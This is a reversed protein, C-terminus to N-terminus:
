DAIGVLDGGELAEVDIVDDHVEIPADFIVFGQLLNAVEAKRRAHRRKADVLRAFAMIELVDQPKARVKCQHAIQPREGDKVFASDREGAVVAQVGGVACAVVPEKRLSKRREM